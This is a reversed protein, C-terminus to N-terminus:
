RVNPMDAETMNSYHFRLGNLLQFEIGFKGYRLKVTFISMVGLYWCISSLTM